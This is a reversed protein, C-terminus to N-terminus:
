FLVTGPANAEGPSLGKGQQISLFHTLSLPISLAFPPPKVIVPHFFICWSRCSDKKKKREARNVPM